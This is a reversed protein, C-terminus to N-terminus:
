FWFLDLLLCGPSSTFSLISPFQQGLKSPFALGLIIFTEWIAVLGCVKVVALYLFHHSPSPQEEEPLDQIGSHRFPDAHCYLHSIGAVALHFDGLSSHNGVCVLAQFEM